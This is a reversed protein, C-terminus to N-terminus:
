RHPLLDPLVFQSRAMPSALREDSYYANMITPRRAFLDANRRKFAQWDDSGRGARREAILIMFFWTITEHYKSEIGLKKTLRRLAESFRAISEQLAYKQLYSWGVFLHAEHDFQDPDIDGREFDEISISSSYSYSPHLRASM